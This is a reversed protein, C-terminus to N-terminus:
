RDIVARLHELTAVAAFTLACQPPEGTLTRGVITIMRGGEANKIDTDIEDVLNRLMTM